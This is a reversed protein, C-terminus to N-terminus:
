LTQSAASTCAAGCVGMSSYMESEVTPLSSLAGAVPLTGGLTAVGRRVHCTVPLIGAELTAVVITTVWVASALFFFHFLVLGVIDTSVAVTIGPTSVM